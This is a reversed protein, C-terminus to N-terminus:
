IRSNMDSIVLELLRQTDFFFVPWFADVLDLKLIECSIFVSRTKQPFQDKRRPTFKAAARDDSIGLRLTQPSFPLLYQSLM